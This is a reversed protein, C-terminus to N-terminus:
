RLLRTDNWRKRRDRVPAGRSLVQRVTGKAYGDRPQKERSTASALRSRMAIRVSDPADGKEAICKRPCPKPSIGAGPLKADEAKVTGGAIRQNGGM